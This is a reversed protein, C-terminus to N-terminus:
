AYHVIFGSFFSGLNANERDTDVKDARIRFDKKAGKMFVVFMCLEVVICLYNREEM